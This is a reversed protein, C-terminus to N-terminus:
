FLERVEEADAFAVKQESQSGGFVLWKPPVGHRRFSLRVINETWLTWTDGGVDVRFRSRQFPREQQVVRIGGRGQTGLRWTLSGCSNDRKDGSRM